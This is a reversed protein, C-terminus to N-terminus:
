GSKTGSGARAWALEMWVSSSMLEPRPDWGVGWPCHGTRAVHSARSQGLGQASDKLLTVIFLMRSLRQQLSPACLSHSPCRQNSHQAIFVIWLDARLPPHWPPLCRHGLSLLPPAPPHTSSKLLGWPPPGPFVDPGLSPRPFCPQAAPVALAFARLCTCVPALSFGRPAWPPQDGDLGQALHSDESGGCGPGRGWSGPGSCGFTHASPSTGQCVAPQAALWSGQVEGRRGWAEVRRSPVVEM